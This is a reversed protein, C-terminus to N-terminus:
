FLFDDLGSLALDDFNETGRSGKGNSGHQTLFRFFFNYMMRYTSVTKSQEGRVSISSM